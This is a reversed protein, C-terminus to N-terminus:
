NIAPGLMIHKGRYRAEEGITQGCKQALEVDWTAALAIPCPMATAFDDTKNMARFGAGVDERVGMPGDDMTLEPIGLRPVGAIAFISNAHCLSVKEELTLKSLLDDIRKEIPQSKDLYPAADQARSLSSFLLTFICCVISTLLREIGPRNM